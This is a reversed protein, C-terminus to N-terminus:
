TVATVWAGLMMTSTLQGVLVLRLNSALGVKLDARLEAMEARLGSRLEAMEARLERGLIDVDSGTAFQDYDIPPMAEMAVEALRESGLARALAHRLDLRDNESIPM